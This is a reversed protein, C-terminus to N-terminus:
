DQHTPHYSGLASLKRKLASRVSRANEGIVVINGLVHARLLEQPQFLAIQYAGESTTLADLSSDVAYITSTSMQVPQPLSFTIPNSRCRGSNPDDDSLFYVPVPVVHPRGATLITSRARLKAEATLVRRRYM